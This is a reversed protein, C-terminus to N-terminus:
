KGMEKLRKQRMRELIVQSPLPAAGPAGPAATPAASEGSASPTAPAVAPALLAKDTGELNKGIEVHTSVKDHEFDISDMTIHSIRGDCVTDGVQAKTMANTRIDELFAIYQGDQHVVGTLVTGQTPTLAQVGGTADSAVNVRNKLFMNNRIVGRYDNWSPNSPKAGEAFAGAALAALLLLATVGQPPMRLNM